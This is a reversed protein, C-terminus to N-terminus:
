NQKMNSVSGRELFAHWGDEAQQLSMGYIARFKELIVERADEYEIAAYVLKVQEIGYTDILYGV